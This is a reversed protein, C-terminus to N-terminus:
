ADPHDQLLGIVFDVFEDSHPSQFGLKDVIEDLSDNMTRVYGGEAKKEFGNVGRGTRRSVQKPRTVSVYGKDELTRPVSKSPIYAGNALTNIGGYDRIQSYGSTSSNEIMVLTLLQLKTLTGDQTLGDVPIDKITERFGMETLTERTLDDFQIVM